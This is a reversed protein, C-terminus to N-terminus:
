SGLFTATMDLALGRPQRSERTVTALITLRLTARGAPRHAEQESQGCSPAQCSISRQPKLSRRNVVSHCGFGARRLREAPYDKLGRM